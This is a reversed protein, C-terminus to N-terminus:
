LSREQEAAPSSREPTPTERISSGPSCQNAHASPPEDIDMDTVLMEIPELVPQSDIDMPDSPPETTESHPQQEVLGESQHPRPPRPITQVSHINITRKLKTAPKGPAPQEQSDAIEIPHDSSGQRTRPRVPSSPPARDRKQVPLSPPTPHVLRRAAGNSGGFAKHETHGNHLHSNVQIIVEPSERKVLPAASPKARAQIPPSDSVKMVAAPSHSRSRPARQPEPEFPSGLRSKPLTESTPAESKPDPTKSSKAENPKVSEQKDITPRPQAPRSTAPTLPMKKKLEKKAKYEARREEAQKKHMDFLLNRLDARMVKPKMDPWDTQASMNGTLIRTKFADPDQMFKRAYGLVFVGCDSFNDQMPIQTSKPYLGKEKIDVEMARKEMGEAKLWDKLARVANSRTL